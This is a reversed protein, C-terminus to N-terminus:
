IAEGLPELGAGALAEALAGLTAPLGDLGLLHATREPGQLLGGQRVILPSAPSSALLAECRAIEGARAGAARSRGAGRLTAWVAIAVWGGCVLAVLAVATSSLTLM